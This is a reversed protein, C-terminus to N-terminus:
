ELYVASYSSCKLVSYIFISLFNTTDLAPVQLILILPKSGVIGIVAASILSEKSITSAALAYVV